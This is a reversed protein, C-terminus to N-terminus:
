PPSVLVILQMQPASEGHANTATVNPGETSPTLLEDAGKQTATIVGTASDIAWWLNSNGLPMAYSTPDNTALATGIFKGATLPLMVIFRQPYVVPPDTNPTAPADGYDVGGNDFRTDAGVRPFRRDDVSNPQEWDVGPTAFRVDTGPTPFRGDGSM